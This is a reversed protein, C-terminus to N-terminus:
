KLGPLSPALMDIPPAKIGLDHTKVLIQNCGTCICSVIVVISGPLVVVNQGIPNLVFGAHNCPTLEEAM